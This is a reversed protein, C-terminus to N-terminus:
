TWGNRRAWAAAKKAKLSADNLRRFKEDEGGRYANLADQAKDYVADDRRKQARTKKTM